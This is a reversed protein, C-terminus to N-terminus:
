RAGTLVNFVDRVDLVVSIAITSILLILWVGYISAARVAPKKFEVLLLYIALPLWFVIHVIGLLWPDKTAQFVFYLAPISLFFVLLVVRAGAYKWVFLISLLFVGVMWNMWMAVNPTAVADIAATMEQM